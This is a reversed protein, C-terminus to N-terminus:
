WLECGFGVKQKNGCIFIAFVRSNNKYLKGESINYIECTTFHKKQKSLFKKVKQSMWVCDYIYWWACFISEAYCTNLMYCVFFVPCYVHVFEVLFVYTSVM